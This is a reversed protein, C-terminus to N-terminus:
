VNYSLVYEKAEKKTLYKGGWDEEIIGDCEDIMGCILQKQEMKDKQMIASENSGLAFYEKLLERGKESKLEWSKLTGWKLLIHDEGTELRVDELISIIEQIENKIIAFEDSNLRRNEFPKLAKNIKDKM